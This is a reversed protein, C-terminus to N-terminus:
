LPSMTLYFSPMPYKRAQLTKDRCWLVHFQESKKFQTNIENVNGISDWFKVGLEGVWEWKKARANRQVSASFTQVVLLGRKRSIASQAMKQYMHLQLCLSWPTSTLEYQQKVQLTASGKAGQTSERARGKPARRDMWYSVSFYYSSALPFNQKEGM